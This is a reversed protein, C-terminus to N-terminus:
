ESLFLGDLAQRVQELLAPAAFPKKLHGVIQQHQMVQRGPPESSMLVIPVARGGAHLQLEEILRGAEEEARDLDLLILDTRGEDLRQLGHQESVAERVHLGLAELNARILKRMQWNCEIALVYRKEM